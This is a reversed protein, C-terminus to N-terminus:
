PEAPGWRAWNEAGAETTVRRLDSGDAAITYLDATGDAPVFMSFVLRDGDPSWDPGWAHHRGVDKPIPVPTIERTVVDVVFLDGDQSGFAITRGDPAWSLQGGPHSKVLGQPVIERLDSGDFRMVEIAAAEDAAPNAGRGCRQRIFAIRAGDPSMM